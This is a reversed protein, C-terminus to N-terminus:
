YNVFQEGPMVFRSNDGTEHSRIAGQPRAPWFLVSLRTMVSGRVRALPILSSKTTLYQDLITLFCPEINTLFNSSDNVYDLYNEHPGSSFPSRTKKVSAVLRAKESHSWITNKLKRSKYWLKGSEPSSGYVDRPSFFAIQHLGSSFRSRTKEVSAM